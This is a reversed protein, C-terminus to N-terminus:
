PNELLKFSEMPNTIRNRIKFIWLIGGAVPPWNLDETIFGERAYFEM